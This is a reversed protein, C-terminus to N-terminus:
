RAIQALRPDGIRLSVHPRGQALMRTDSGLDDLQKVRTEIRAGLARALRALRALSVDARADLRRQLFDLAEVFVADQAVEDVRHFRRQAGVEILEIRAILGLRGNRHFELAALDVAQRQRAREIFDKYIRRPDLGHVQAEALDRAAADAPGVPRLIEAGLHEAQALRLLDLVGHDNRDAGLAAENGLLQRHAPRTVRDLGLADAGVLYEDGAQEVDGVVQAGVAHNRR